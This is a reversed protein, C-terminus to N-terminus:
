ACMTCIQYKEFSILETRFSDVKVNQVSIDERIQCCYMIILSQVGQCRGLYSNQHLGCFQVMKLAFASYLDDRMKKADKFLTFPCSCFTKAVLFAHILWLKHCLCIKVKIKQFLQGLIPWKSLLLWLLSLPPLVIASINPFNLYFSFVSKKHIFHHASLIAPISFLTDPAKKMSKNSGVLM